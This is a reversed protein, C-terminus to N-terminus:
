AEGKLEASASAQWARRAAALDAATDCDFWPAPEPSVSEPAAPSRAAADSDAAVPRLPGLLGRLSRGQYAALASRLAGAAWAGALWQPRGGTDVFVAAGTWPSAGPGPGTAAPAQAAELLRIIQAPSLFPLDAALLVLWPAAAEALGRRLAPVPGGGPPEERVVSAGLGALAQGVVGERQPGVVIVRSTGALHAARAVSVLMPTGGVTLAPKDAGGLRAGDGGALIITDFAETM